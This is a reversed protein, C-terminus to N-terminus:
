AVEKTKESNFTFREEVSINYLVKIDDKIVNIGDKYELHKTDKLSEWRKVKSILKNYYPKQFDNYLHVKEGKENFTSIWFDFVKRRKDNYDLYRTDGLEQFPTTFIQEIMETTIYRDRNRFFEIDFESYGQIPEELSLTVRRGIYYVSCDRSNVKKLLKSLERKKVEATKM